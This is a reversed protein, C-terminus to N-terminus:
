IEPTLMASGSIVEAVPPPPRKWHGPMEDTEALRRIVNQSGLVSWSGAGTDARSRDRANSASFLHDVEFIALRDPEGPRQNEGRGDREHEGAAIRQELHLEGT